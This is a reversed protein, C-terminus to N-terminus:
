RSIADRAESRREEHEEAQEADNLKKLREIASKADHRRDFRVNADHYLLCAFTFVVFSLACAQGADVPPRIHRLVMLFALCVLAAVFVSVLMRVNFGRWLFYMTSFTACATSLILLLWSLARWRLSRPHDQSNPARSPIQM